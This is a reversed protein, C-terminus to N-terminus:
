RLIPSSPPVISGAMILFSNGLYAGALSAEETPRLAKGLPHGDGRSRNWPQHLCAARTRYGAQRARRESPAEPGGRSMRCWVGPDVALSSRQAVHHCRAPPLALVWASTSQWSYVKTMTPTLISSLGNQLISSCSLSQRHIYILDLIRMETMQCYVCPAQWGAM